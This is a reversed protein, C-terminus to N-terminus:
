DTSNRKREINELKELRKALSKNVMGLAELVNSTMTM